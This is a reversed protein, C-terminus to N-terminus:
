GGDPGEARKPRGDAARGLDTIEYGGHVYRRFIGAACLREMMRTWAARALGNTGRHELLGNGDVARHVQAAQARTLAVARSAGAEARARERQGARISRSLEHLDTKGMM